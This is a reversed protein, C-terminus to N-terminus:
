VSDTTANDASKQKNTPIPSSGAYLFGEGARFGNQQALSQM